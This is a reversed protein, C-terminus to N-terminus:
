QAKSRATALQIRIAAAQAHLGENTSDSMLRRDIEALQAEFMAIESKRAESYQYSQEFVEREVITKGILGVARLGWFAIMTVMILMSVWVWWGGFYSKESEM